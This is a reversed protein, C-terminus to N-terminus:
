TAVVKCEYGEGRLREYIIKQEAEDACMVIVGYQEQYNFGVSTEAEGGDEGQETEFGFDSMDLDIESLELDLKEFDWGALEATKNDALRLAKVRQEDLDDIVEIPVEKLGLEQAARLRTHGAIVVNEKDVWIAGRFGFEKISNKVKEVAEDNKRPNNEYPIVQDIAVWKWEHKAM